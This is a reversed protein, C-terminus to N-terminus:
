KRVKSRVILGAPTKLLRSARLLKEEAAAMRADERASREHDFGLLHLLGHALLVVAEDRVGHGEARAQRRTVDLCLVLDGLFAIGRPAPGRNEFSLVDTPRNKARYRRNLRKMAAAGVCSVSLTLGAPARVLGLSRAAIVLRTAAAKVRWAPPAGSVHIEDRPM